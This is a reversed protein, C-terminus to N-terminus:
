WGSWKGWDDVDKSWDFPTPWDVYFEDIEAIKELEKLVDAGFEGAINSQPILLKHIPRGAHQSHLISDQLKSANFDEKCAAVAITHLKPWQAVVRGGNRSDDIDGCIIAKFVQGVMDKENQLTLQEIGPFTQALVALGEEADEMGTVLSHRMSPFRHELVAPIQPQGSSLAVLSPAEIVLPAVSSSIIKLFRQICYQDLM